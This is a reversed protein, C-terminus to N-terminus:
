ARHPQCAVAILEASDPTVPGCNWDGFWTVEAFGAERLLRAITAQPAFRLRSRSTLATGDAFAYRSDFTVIEGDVALVTNAVDVRGIGAVDLVRVAEPTWREWARAAPNRSEFALIGGPALLRRAAAFLAAVAADDLLVQFAHGTMVALDFIGDGPVDGATGEIWRVPEGGPRSRAVALMAGAPDVGTVAHGRRAYEAAVLGTGCGIDLVRMAPRGALSLYFDSDAGLANQADYLAVLRPDRYHASLDTAM